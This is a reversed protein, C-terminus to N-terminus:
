RTGGERANSLSFTHAKPGLQVQEGAPSLATIPPEASAQVGDPRVRLRVRSGRFRVRLELADWGPAIVPDIALTDGVPRLGGFGYALTRWVSGMAAVHLGAATVGGIDDLDIRSTLRLLDTAQDLRGARALLAAHVGPSLTSGHATRPDYYDLNPELSGPAVEDPLLYHLMLVDPQKVVQASRIREPGLLVDAAVPRQPALEAILLPELGSFGAFQEYIGTSPDYGDVIADALDLWHHREAAELTGAHDVSAARRLNWRAMVNTYADDDVLEHYEDPGIVGRIHGSGDADLEIRTAWWRATQVLLERGPGAAFVQDGTWDTYHAAAWAVDAVIHEERQGTYIRDTGGHGNPVSVPTMDKGSAASEWAFRAGARGQLRAARLSAPLRRVRYELMARAAPPHTAALFPLVYVDSDWFVHGRYGKGTLGRAGVAAEGDDAVSAILHFLALRVARQLEPDGAIVIDADEWRAAWAARHEGLLGDFGVTRAEDVRDLAAREDAVGASVGEYCALRDFRWGGPRDPRQDDSILEASAAVISGPSGAVRVWSSGNREGSEHDAGSPPQLGGPESLTASSGNVRMATTAPRALSAFLLARLHADGALDHTLTGSRLDLVRRTSLEVDGRLELVNWRPGPLLQTEPGQGTYVGALLVSPDDAPDSVLKSGRTGLKGDAVTLLSEHVRELRPQADEITISWQPDPDLVPLEGRHRRAIQDALVASLMAPATSHEGRVVLVQCAGIGSRWLMDRVCRISDAEGAMGVESSPAADQEITVTGHVRQPGDRDVRFVESGGDVSLLLRGPESPRAGLRGDLDALTADSVIALDIGAVCSDEILRRLGNVDSVRDVAATPDGDCVIAEFRRALPAPLASAARPESSATM